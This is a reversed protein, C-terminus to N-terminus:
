SEGIDNRSFILYALVACQGLVNALRGCLDPSQKCKSRFTHSGSRPGVVPSQKAIKPLRYTESRPSRLSDGTSVGFEALELIPVRTLGRLFTPEHKRLEKRGSYLKELARDM